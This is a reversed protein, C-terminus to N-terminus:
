KGTQLPRYLGLYHSLLEYQESNLKAKKGMKAMWVMWERDTYNAPNYFKHCNACKAVYLSRASDTELTSLSSGGGGPPPPPPIGSGDM